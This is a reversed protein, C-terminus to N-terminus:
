YDTDEAWEYDCSPCKYHYFSQCNGNTFQKWHEVFYSEGVTTRTLKHKCLPCYKKSFWGKPEKTKRHFCQLEYLTTIYKWKPAKKKLDEQQKSLIQKLELEVKTPQEEAGCNKCRKLVEIEQEEESCNCYKCSEVM